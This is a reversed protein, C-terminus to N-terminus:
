LFSEKGPSFNINLLSFSIGSDTSKYVDESGDFIYINDLSDIGIVIGNNSDAGNFDDNVLSWTVGSDISKYLDQVDLIFLEDSSDVFMDTAHNGIGGNYDDKILNWTAGFDSSKWVDAQTDVVFINNSSDIAIGFAGGNAENFNSPTVL